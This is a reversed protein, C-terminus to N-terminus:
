KFDLKVQAIELLTGEAFYFQALARQYNARARIEASEASALEGQLQLVFYLSSKGQVLKQEEAKLAAEAFERAGRTAGASEYATRLNELADSVERLVMEEKQKVRAEAQERVQKGAKYSARERARSLPMSFVVGVVTNPADGGEIQDFAGSLSATPFGPPLTQSASAGRRGYAAVVDVSPFLQNHRFRLDIGARRYEEQLQALDPRSTLARRWSRVLELSEPIVLLPDSPVIETPWEPAQVALLLKLSNQAQAVVNSAAVLGVKTRALQSQALQEDLITLSGVEVRRQIGTLIEDRAQFLRHQVELNARAFALEYYAQHVQNVVDMVTYAFGFESIKLNARSIQISTRGADTWFNKLLPQQATVGMFLKYSDFLLLNRTGDSHAYNAGLNYSLGSPLLGSLGGSAVDSRASYIADRSFDAPDFGGTDSTDEWEYGFNLLPDYYGYAGSLLSRSVDPNLKEVQLTRNKVLAENLCERLSLRRIATGESASAASSLLLLMALALSSSLNELCCNLTM